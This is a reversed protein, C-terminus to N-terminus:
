EKILSPNWYIGGTVGGGLRSSTDYLFRIRGQFGSNVWVLLAAFKAVWELVSTSATAVRLGWSITERHVMGDTIVVGLGGAAYANLATSTM